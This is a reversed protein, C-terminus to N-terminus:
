SSRVPENLLWSGPHAQPDEGSLRGLLEWFGKALEIWTM